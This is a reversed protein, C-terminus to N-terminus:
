DKFYNSFKIKKQVFYQWVISGNFVGSLTKMPKKAYYIRKNRQTLWIILVQFHAKFIARFIVSKGSLLGQWASIADMLFRLPLKYIIEQWSLNKGLM